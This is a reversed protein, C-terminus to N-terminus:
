NAPPSSPVPAPTAQVHRDFKERLHLASLLLRTPEGILEYVAAHSRMMGEASPLYKFVGPERYGVVSSPAPVVAFGAEMFEHAARWEHTSSTVLIIRRVGEPQLLRASLQANEYTDRSNGEIWRPVVGFDRELTQAIAIIEGPGGSIALPLAYRKSLFAALDLRELLVSEAVAGNYEPAWPRNTGGGLVVVAQANVPKDPNWAPYRGALRSLADAVFPSSLSWLAVFGVLFLTWGFRRRRRILIAGILILFLLFLPPLVLERLLIKLIFV